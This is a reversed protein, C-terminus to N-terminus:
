VARAPTSPNEEGEKRLCLFNIYYHPFHNVNSSINFVFIKIFDLGQSM